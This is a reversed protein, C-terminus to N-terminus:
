RGVEEKIPKRNSLDHWRGCRCKFGNKIQLPYALKWNDIIKCRDCNTKMKGGGKESYLQNIAQVM